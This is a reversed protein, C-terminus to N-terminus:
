AVNCYGREELGVAKEEISVRGAGTSAEIVHGVALTEFGFRRCSTEAELRLWSVASELGDRRCGTPTALCLDSFEEDMHDHGTAALSEVFVGLAALCWPLDFGHFSGGVARPEWM